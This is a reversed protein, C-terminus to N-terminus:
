LSIQVAVFLVYMLLMIIGHKWNMVRRSVFLSGVTVTAIMFLAASVFSMIKFTIPRTLAAIGLVLSANVVISGLIDGFALCSHKTLASRVEVTLEPVTTGFAVFLLGMIYPSISLMKSIVVASFVLYRSALILSAICGSFVVMDQWVDKLRISKKIHGLKGEKQILKMIYVLFATILIAGDVRSLSGDMGLVLPLLIMALVTFVTKNIVKEKVIIKRAVLLTIGFVVTIDIINAGIVDGLILKGQGLISGIVATSLEPLSTGISVVVFGIM